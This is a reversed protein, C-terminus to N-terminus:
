YRACLDAERDVEVACVALGVQDARRAVEASAQEIPDGAANPPGTAARRSHRARSHTGRGGRAYKRWWLAAPLAIALILVAGATWRLAARLTRDLIIALLVGAVIVEAVCLWFWPGYRWDGTRWV